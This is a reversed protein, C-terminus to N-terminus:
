CWAGRNRGPAAESVDPCVSLASRTGAELVPDLAVVSVPAPARM